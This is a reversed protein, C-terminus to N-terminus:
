GAAPRSAKDHEAALRARVQEVSRARSPDTQLADNIVAIDERLWSAQAKDRAQLARLGERVVESESGYEGAAVKARVHAAMEIPLTINLQETTRVFHEM